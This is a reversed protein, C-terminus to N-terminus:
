EEDVYFKKIVSEPSENGAADTSKVKCFYPTNIEYEEKLEVSQNNTTLTEIIASEPFLSDSAVTLEDTIPSGSDPGRQWHIVLNTKILTDGHNKPITIEPMEPVTTDITLEHTFYATSSNAAEAQVGWVYVGEEEFSYKFGTGVTDNLFIRDGAWSGKHIKYNYRLALPLSEWEFRQGLENSYSKDVPSLLKVKQNSIDSISDVFLIHDFYATSSYANYASVSWIYNGPNLTYAFTNRSVNTDLALRLWKPPKHNTDILIVQLNYGLADSVNDWWFTQNLVDTSVSDSPALLVVQEDSIDPETILQCAYLLTFCCIGLLIYKLKDQLM